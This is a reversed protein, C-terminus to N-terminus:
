KYRRLVKEIDSVLDDVERPRRVASSLDGYHCELCDILLDKLALEDPEYRLDSTHYLEELASEKQAFWDRVRQETWEGRRIAKLMDSHQRLDIDKEALIQEAELVLRVTHYAFKIDYGYEQVMEYRKSKKTKGKLRSLQSYAYGRFRHFAGKHLFLSRNDRVMQGVQTSHLVCDHPVFLSDIMNPNNDMCLQFYKVISYISLDYEREGDVIHHQQYQEFRKKQKGFGLIDGALHPFVVEKPPIAFGYVDFDSDDTAVGYAVSGMWVEYMTNDPLWDPPSALGKGTLKKTVSAM